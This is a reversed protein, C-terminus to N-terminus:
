DLEEVTVDVANVTVRCMTGLAASVHEQVARAAEPLV